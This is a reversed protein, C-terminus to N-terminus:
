LYREKELSKEEQQHGAKHKCVTFSNSSIINSNVLWALSSDLWFKSIWLVRLLVKCTLRVHWSLLSLSRLSHPDRASVLEGTKLIRHRPAPPESASDFTHM